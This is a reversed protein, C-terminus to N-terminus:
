HPRAREHSARGLPPAHRMAAFAQSGLSYVMGLFVVTWVTLAIYIFASPVPGLWDISFTKAVEHTAVTYMGLPFVMGWYMPNYRLPFREYIHRWIGLMVLMPIWWTAAAWYLFTAGQIVPLLNRVLPAGDAEGALSGGALASISMAGMNIWFVPQLDSPRVRFFVYRYFLIPIMWLYLMAGGLWMTVAFLPASGRGDAWGRALSVGLVAIAQTAVVALLWGGNIGSELSPKERKVILASFIAYTLPVWLAIALGWLVTATTEDHFLKAVQNGLICSAAPATFFGFAKEHSTLDDWVARPCCIVRAAALVGLLAFFAVNLWFLAVALAPLKLAHAALGVIGTAMVLSFYAPNMTALKERM